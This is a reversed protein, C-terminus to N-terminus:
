LLEILAINNHTKGGTFSGLFRAKTLPVTDLATGASGQALLGGAAATLGLTSSVDLASGASPATAFTLTAAAGTATTEITIGNGTKKITVGATAAKAATDVITVVDDVTTVASFDMSNLTKKTGGVTIDMGGDQVAKLATLDITGGTLVAPTPTAKGTVEGAAFAGIRLGHAVTDRVIWHVTGGYVSTGSALQVWIRAGSRDRRAINCMTDTYWCAEGNPNSRMAQNRVVVGAFESDTANALPPMVTINNVGARNTVTAPQEIVGIGAPMGYIEDAIGVFASDVLNMDSANALMGALATGQQDFYESQIFGRKPTYM